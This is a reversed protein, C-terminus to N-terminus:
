AGALAEYRALLGGMAADWSYTLSRARGAEGMRRRLDADTVLAKVAEFMASEDGVAPLFGTVGAQVLSRSGTANACVAPLGSAMAELTVNGFTETDSPFFFVDASAYAVPLDDGTLFGEFLADPAEKELWGREPGDGIFLARHTVGAERLRELVRAVSEVRKEKVLRGAFAVLVEDLAVGRASRWAESRRAPSFRETDVGRPWLRIDGAIGDARMVEIMSESPAFIEMAGAYFRRIMGALLPTLLDLGYYKLYTEYRTHYSAVIPWGMRKGLAMAAHGLLDPTAIHLIDPDFKLLRRRPAAPLGLAARYEGRGPAAISRVPVVEGRHAFAPRDGVPAFILVEVGRSELFGVMRNLTLAVGDQIYNYSGTVLAVRLPRGLLPSSLRGAAAPSAVLEVM